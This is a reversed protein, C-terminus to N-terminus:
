SRLNERSKRKLQWSQIKQTQVKLVDQHHPAKVQGRENVSYNIHVIQNSIQTTQKYCSQWPDLRNEAVIAAKSITEKSKTLRTLSVQTRIRASCM